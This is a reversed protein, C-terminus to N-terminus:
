LKLSRKGNDGYGKLKPYLHKPNYRYVKVYPVGERLKPGNRRHCGTYLSLLHLTCLRAMLETGLIIQSSPFHFPVDVKRPLDNILLLKLNKNIIIDSLIAAGYRSALM